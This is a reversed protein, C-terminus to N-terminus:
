ERAQPQAPEYWDGRLWDAILGIEEPSLMKKEGFAPMRDNRKGYFDEHGPNNLFRVLWDRSGYGTLDPAFADPDKVHFQHCDKCWRRGTPGPDLSCIPKLEADTPIRGERTSPFQLLVGRIEEPSPHGSM